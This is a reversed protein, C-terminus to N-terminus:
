TLYRYIYRSRYVFTHYYVDLSSPFIQLSHPVFQSSYPNLFSCTLAQSACSSSIQFPNPEMKHDSISYIYLVLRLVLRTFSSTVKQQGINGYTYYFMYSQIKSLHQNLLLLLAHYVALLDKSFIHKFFQFIAHCFSSLSQKYKDYNWLLFQKYIILFM